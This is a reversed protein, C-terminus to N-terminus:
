LLATDGDEHSMRGPSPPEQPPAAPAERVLSGLAPQKRRRGWAKLIAILEDGPVPEQFYRGQARDCGARRLLDVSQLGEVGEACVQLGLGHALGIAAGIVVDSDRRRELADVFRQDIKIEAFPLRILDLLTSFGTGFDDMSLEFGLLRLRTMVDLVDLRDQAISSETLEIMVMSSDFGHSSVVQALADPLSLDTLSTASVNVSVPLMLGADRCLSALGLAQDLLMLTLDAAIGEREAEAIFETATLPGHFPHDWRALVEARKLRPEESALDVVPQYVAFFQNEELASRLESPTVRPRVGAILGLVPRLAAPTVPRQISPQMNLGQRRGVREASQMVKLDADGVLVIDARCRRAALYRMMDVADRGGVELGLLILDPEHEANASQLTDFNAAVAAGCGFRSALWEVISGADAEDSAILIRKRAAERLVEAEVPGGLTSDQENGTAQM